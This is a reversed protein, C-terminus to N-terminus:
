HAHQEVEPPGVRFRSCRGDFVEVEVLSPREGFLMHAFSRAHDDDECRVFQFSPAERRAEHLYFTYPKM